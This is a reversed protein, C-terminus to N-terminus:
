QAVERSWTHAENLLAVVEQDSTQTFDEYHWSIAYLPEPSILCVVEDTQSRLREVTDAPAVPVALVLDAPRVRSLGQLAARVTGGTAIGDDVVIVIRGVINISPRGGLYRKRRREIERLQRRTEAEIYAAPVDLQAVVEENLEVQPHAGDVV